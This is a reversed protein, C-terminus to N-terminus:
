NQTARMRWKMQIEELQGVCDKATRGKLGYYKKIQTFTIGRCKMGAAMIKLNYIHVALQYGFYPIEGTATSVKPTQLQGLEAQQQAQEFHTM